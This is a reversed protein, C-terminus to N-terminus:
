VWHWWDNREKSHDAEDFVDSGLNLLPAAFRELREDKADAQLHPGHKL